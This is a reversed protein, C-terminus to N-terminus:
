SLKSVSNLLEQYEVAIKRHREASTRLTDPNWWLPKWNEDSFYGADVIKKEETKKWNPGKHDRYDQVTPRRKEANGARELLEKEYKTQASITKKIESIVPATAEVTILGYEPTFPIPGMVKEEAEYRAERGTLVDHWDGGPKGVLGRTPATKVGKRRLVDWDYTIRIGGDEGKGSISYNKDRTFSVYRKDLKKYGKIPDYESGYGIANFKIIGLLSHLNTWHYLYQRSGSNLKEFLEKLRM